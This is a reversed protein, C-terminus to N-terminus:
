MEAVPASVVEALDPADAPESTPLAPDGDPAISPADVEVEDGSASADAAPAEDDAPSTTATQDDSAQEEPSPEAPAPVPSQGSQQVIRLFEDRTVCVDDVCLKGTTLEKTTLQDGTARTYTLERTTFADAFGTVKAALTQIAKVVISLISRDDVGSINGGADYTGLHPDVAVADDAIFGYRVTSSADDNYIFSVPQLALVQAFADIAIPNIDHKTSRLSSLCNDSGSNYVVERNATLCLSGGGTSGTLGDFGVTGTVALTRWPTTSAVGVKGGSPSLFVSSGNWSAGLVQVTGQYLRLANTSSYEEGLRAYFSGSESSANIRLYKADGAAITFADAPSTTGVGVNGNNMVSFLTTSASNIVNLAASTSLSDAGWVTLRASPSTTGVAINDTFYIDGYNTQSWPSLTSYAALIKRPFADYPYVLGLYGTSNSITPSEVRGQSSASGSFYLKNNGTVSELSVKSVDFRRSGSPSADRFAFNYNAPNFTVSQIEFGTLSFGEVGSILILGTYNLNFSGGEERINRALVNRSNVIELMKVNSIQNVEINELTLENMNHLKFVTDTNTTPYVYINGFYNNPQSGESFYSLDISSGSINSFVITELRNGWFAEHAEQKIGAYCGSFRLNIFQSNYTTYFPGSTAGLIQLCIAATNTSPQTNKYRLTIGDFKMSNQYLGNLVLIPTNDTVQEIIGDGVIGFGRGVNGTVSVSSSIQYYGSGKPIYITKSNAAAYNIATQIAATDDTTGDGKAGFDKVSLIDDLKAYVTRQISGTVSSTYPITTSASIIGGGLPLYDSVTINDPVDADTLGSVGNVTVNSLSTGSLQDIRQSAAWGSVTLPASVGSYSSVFVPSTITQTTPFGAIFRQLAPVLASLPALRKDLASDLEAKTVYGSLDVPAPAISSAVSSTAIAVPASASIPQELVSATAASAVLMQDPPAQYVGFLSLFAAVVGALMEKM